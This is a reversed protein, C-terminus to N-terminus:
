RGDIIKNWFDLNRRAVTVCDNHKVVFERGERGLRQLREPHLVTEEIARYVSEYDPEVNIVPRLEEEGIFRYYSYSAGSVTALGMSMALLATTAPTYSYIQDLVVHVGRLREVFETYPRNEVIELRARGPYREIVARAAAELVEAGKQLARAKHRGLLFRVCDVRDPIGVPAVAATDVPIGGYAIKSDPLVRRLAVDYEWLCSVAGDVAELIHRGTSRLPEGVWEASERPHAEAYPSPRGYVSYENYRLPSAPDLCEDVYNTDTGIASYFVAPNHRRVYDFVARVRAPKLPLFGQTAVSVIDYGALRRRLGMQFRLWLDLGGLRGAFRRRLDIDRRTDMWATGDSAVTVDCGLRRLGTALTNHFNSFDGLLLIKRDDRM